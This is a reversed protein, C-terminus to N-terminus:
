MEREMGGRERDREVQDIVKSTVDDISAEFQFVISIFFTYKKVFLFLCMFCNSPLLFDSPLQTFKSCIWSDM